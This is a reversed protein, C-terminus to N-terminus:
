YLWSYYPQMKTTSSTVKQNKAINLTYSTTIGVIIFWVLIWATTIIDTTHFSGAWEQREWPEFPKTSFLSTISKVCGCLLLFQIGSASHSLGSHVCHLHILKFMKAGDQALMSAHVHLSLCSLAKSFLFTNPDSTLCCAFIYFICQSINRVSAYEHWVQINFLLDLGLM